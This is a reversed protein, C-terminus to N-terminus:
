KSIRSVAKILNAPQSITGTSNDYTVSTDLMDVTYLGRDVIVSYVEGVANLGQIYEYLDPPLQDFLFMQPLTAGYGVMSIWHGATDFSVSPGSSVRTIVGSDSHGTMTYPRNPFYESMFRSINAESASDGWGDEGTTTTACAGSYLILTLATLWGYLKKIMKESFIKFPSPPAQPM